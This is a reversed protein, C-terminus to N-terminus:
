PVPQEAALVNAALKVGTLKELAALSIRQRDFEPLEVGELGFGYKKVVDSQSFLYGYAKLNATKKPGDM